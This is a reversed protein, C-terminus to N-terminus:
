KRARVGRRMTELHAQVEPDDADVIDFAKRMAALSVPVEAWTPWPHLEEAVVRWWPAGSPWKSPNKPKERVVPGSLWGHILAHRPQVSAPLPWHVCQCGYRPGAIVTVFGFVAARLSHGGVTVSWWTGDARPISGKVDLLGYFDGDDGMPRHAIEDLTRHIGTNAEVAVEAAAGVDESWEMRGGALHKGSDLKTRSEAIAQIRGGSLGLCIPVGGSSM